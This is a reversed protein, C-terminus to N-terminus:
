IELLPFQECLKIVLFHFAKKLDDFLFFVFASEARKTEEQNHNLKQTGDKAVLRSEGGCLSRGCRKFAVKDFAIFTRLFFREGGGLASRRFILLGNAVVLTKAVRRCNRIQNDRRFFRCNEM